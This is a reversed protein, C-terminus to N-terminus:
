HVQEEGERLGKEKGKQLQELEAEADKLSKTLTSAEWDYLKGVSPLFVWYLTAFVGTTCLGHKLLPKDAFYSKQRQWPTVQGRKGLTSLNRLTKLKSWSSLNRMMKLKPQLYSLLCDFRKHRLRLM